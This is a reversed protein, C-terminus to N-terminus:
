GGAAAGHPPDARKQGPLGLSQGRGLTVGSMAAAMASRPRRCSAGASGPWLSSRRPRGAQLEGTQGEGQGEQPAHPRKGGEGKAQSEGPERGCDHPPAM